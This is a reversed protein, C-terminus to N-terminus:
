SRHKDFARWVVQRRRITNESYKRRRLLACYQKIDADSLTLVEKGREAAWDHIQELDSWYARATNYTYGLLFDERLDEFRQDRVPLAAALPMRDTPYRAAAPADNPPTPSPM